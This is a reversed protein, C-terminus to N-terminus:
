ANIMVLFMYSVAPNANSKVTIRVSGTKLATVQGTVPDVTAVAPNSSSWTVSPDAGPPTVTIQLKLKTGVKMNLSTQAASMTISTPAPLGAIWNATLVIDGAVAANFDYPAGGLYWGTFTYGTKTPDAPRTVKDGENVTVTSDPTVGGDNYSFTVTHTPPPPITVTVAATGSVTPVDASTARVTLTAATEDAGVTLLGSNNITTAASTNGEVSWAVTGTGNVAATFAATEGKLVSAAPPTVTVGSVSVNYVFDAWRFNAGNEKLYMYINRMGGIMSANFFTTPSGTASTAWYQKMYANRGPANYDGTTSSDGYVTWSTTPGHWFNIGAFYNDFVFQGGKYVNDYQVTSAANVSGRVPTGTNDASTYFCFNDSPGYSSASYTNGNSYNIKIETLNDTNLYGLYFVDGTTIYGADATPPTGEFRFDTSQAWIWPLDTFYVRYTHKGNAVGMDTIPPRVDEPLVPVLGAAAALLAQAAANIQDQTAPAALVAKAQNLVPLYSAWRADPYNGQAAPCQALANRLPTLDLSSPGQLAFNLTDFYIGPASYTVTLKYLGPALPVSAATQTVWQGGTANPSFTAVTAGNMAIVASMQATPATTDTKMLGALSYNGGDIVHVIYEETEGPSQSVLSLGSQAGAATAAPPNANTMSVPRLEGLKLTTNPNIDSVTGDCVAPNLNVHAYDVDAYFPPPTATGNYVTIGIKPDTLAHTVSKFTYYNIGDQSVSGTYTDGAKNLRFWLTTATGVASDLGAPSGAQTLSDVGSLVNNTEQDVAVIRGGASGTTNYEYHLWVYNSLDQFALLGVGNYQANPIHNMTFKTVMEWDGNAYQYLINPMTNGSANQYIDGYGATMRLNGPSTTLSLLSPNSNAVSWFGSLAATNFDDSKPATVLRVTYVAAADSSECAITFLGNSYTNVIYTGDGNTTAASTITVGPGPTVTVVPVGSSAWNVNYALTGSNFGAVTTGNLKIDTLVAPVGGELINGGSTTLSVVYTREFGNQTAVIVAGPVQATPQTISKITTGPAADATVAPYGNAAATKSYYVAYDLGQPTFTTIARGGVKIGTLAPDGITPGNVYFRRNQPATPAYKLQAAVAPAANAFNPDFAAGEEQQAFAPTAMAFQLINAANRALEARTITGTNATTYGNYLPNYQNSNGAGNNNVTVDNNGTGGQVVSYIDNEAQAMFPTNNQSSSTGHANTSNMNPWWDTMVVGKFGWEGRLATLTLDPNSASWLGNVPNYSTMVSRAGGDEVAIQFAKLYIERLARESAVANCTNRGTEQSNCVFHKITPTMGQSQAGRVLVAAMEGTLLPDESFYEFNRGNLVYRHINIGPGLAVDVFNQLVEKAWYQAFQQILDLNWTCAIATGSAFNTAYKTLYSYDTGNVVNGSSQLRLGSPGDAEAILPVGRTKLSATVGAFEGATGGAPVGTPSMGPSLAIACLDAQTLSQIFQTLTITGKFVDLLKYNQNATSYTYDPQAAISAARRAAINADATAAAVVPVAESGMAYTGTGDASPAAPKIRSFAQTPPMIQQLQQTITNATETYKASLLQCSTDAWQAGARVCNGAYFQYDGALLEYASDAEVYSALDSIRVSITLDQSDGPYLVDTKAFGVLQKSPNGITGQPPADYVQVVEKGKMLGTNKVTVPINVHTDDISVAGPTISFNTYSLGFGFPYLVHNYAGSFTEFYRYGVYIDEGYYANSSNGTQVKGDPTTGSPYYAALSDAITDALKGSPTTNGSVVDAVAYGGKQGGTWAYLIAASPYNVSWAMDMVNACNMVIVVRKFASYVQSIMSLENNSLYYGMKTTDTDSSTAPMDHDEGATRGIIVMATDSVAAAQSVIDATLPMEVQGFPQPNWGGLASSNFPNGNAVWNKYINALDENVKVAPNGRLGALINDQRFDQMKVDGGSGTGSNYYNLQARGFVSIAEGKQVPLVKGIVNAHQDAYGANLAPNQLMVIGEAAAVRGVDDFGALPTAGVQTAPAMVLASFAMAATLVGALSRKMAKNKM